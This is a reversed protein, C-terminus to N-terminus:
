KSVVVQVTASRGSATATVKAKGKKMAHVAGDATVTAIHGDSSRWSVPVGAVAKGHRDVPEARVRVTDGRKLTLKAPKVVLKAFEPIKVTVQATGRVAGSAATITATGPGVAVVRGETVTAIAADSSSWALPAAATAPKGNEDAVAATLVAVEGPRLDRSAPSVTVSAAISVVVRAAGKADGATATVQAEGSRMATVTGAEDVAAVTPASSAWSVKVKGPEVQAGKADRLVAQLAKTASKSSLVVSAPEITVSSVSPGCGAAAVLIWFPLRKM